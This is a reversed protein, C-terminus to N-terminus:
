RGKTIADSTEKVVGDIPILRTPKLYAALDAARKAGNPKGTAVSYGMTEVRQTVTLAPPPMMHGWEAVLVAAGSGTLTDVRSKDANGSVTPGRDIQFPAPRSLALPIWVTAADHTEELEIKTTVEFTRSAAAHSERLAVPTAAVISLFERRNM